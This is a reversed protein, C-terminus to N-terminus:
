ASNDVRFNKVYDLLKPRVHDFNTEQFIRKYPKHMLNHARWGARWGYRHRTVSFILPCIEWSYAARARKRDQPCEELRVMDHKWERAWQEAKRRNTTASHWFTDCAHGNSWCVVYVRMIM